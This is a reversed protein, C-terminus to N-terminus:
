RTVVEVAGSEEFLRQVSISRPDGPDVRVTVGILGEDIRPDYGAKARHSRAVMIVVALFTSVIAFLMMTEYSIIGVVPRTFIAKGGTRLPYLVFTGGALLFGFLIGVAGAILTVPYLQIPKWQHLAPQEFLPLTSSISIAGEPIELRSLSDLLPALSATPPFLAFLTREPRVSHDKSEVENREM